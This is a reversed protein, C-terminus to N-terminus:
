LGLPRRNKDLLYYLASGFLGASIIEGIGVTLIVFWLADPVGYAYVLVLPVISTNAIVTPLTSLWMLRRPLRRLYYAGLAGLLTALSGFIIDWVVASTILNSIICGIFLGPVAEPFFVPLVTLAESIRLQIVGGSLGLLSSLWTLIVYLAAVASAVTLGRAYGRNQNKSKM